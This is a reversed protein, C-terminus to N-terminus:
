YIINIIGILAVLLILTILLFKINEITNSYIMEGIKNILVNQELISSPTYLTNIINIYNDDGLTFYSILSVIIILIIITNFPSLIVRHSSNILKTPPTIMIVFGFLITLAGLFVLALIYSIFQCNNLGLLFAISIIIAIFNFLINIPKYEIVFLISFLIISLVIIIDNKM